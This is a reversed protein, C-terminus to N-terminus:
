VDFVRMRTIGGIIQQTKVKAITEQTVLNKSTPLWIKIEDDLGSTALVPLHPHPELVNVQPYGISTLGLIENGIM